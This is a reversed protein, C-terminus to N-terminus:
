TKKASQSSDMILEYMTNMFRKNTFDNINLIGKKNDTKSFCLQRVKGHLKKDSTYDPMAQCPMFFVQQKVPNDEKVLYDNENLIHLSEEIYSARAMREHDLTGYMHQPNLIFKAQCTTLKDEKNFMIIDVGRDDPSLGKCIREDYAVSAHIAKDYGVRNDIRTLEFFALALIEGIPGRIKLKPNDATPYMDEPVITEEILKNLKRVAHKMDKTDKICPAWMDASIMSHHKM